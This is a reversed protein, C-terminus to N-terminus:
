DENTWSGRQRDLDALQVRATEESVAAIEKQFSTSIKVQAADMQQKTYGLNKLENMATKVAELKGALMGNVISAKKIQIRAHISKHIADRLRDRKEGFVGLADLLFVIGGGPVALSLFGPVGLVSELISKDSYGNHFSWSAGTMNLYSSIPDFCPQLGEIVHIVWSSYQYQKTPNAPIPVQIGQYMERVKADLEQLDTNITNAYSSLEQTLSQIDNGLQKVRDERKPNDPYFLDDM